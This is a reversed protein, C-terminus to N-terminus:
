KRVRVAVIKRATLSTQNAFFYSVSVCRRIHRRDAPYLYSNVCDVEV